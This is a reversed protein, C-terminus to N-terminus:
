SNENKSLCESSKKLELGFLNEAVANPSSRKSGAVAAAMVEGVALGMLCALYLAIAQVQLSFDVLAHLGEAVLIAVAALTAPMPRQARKIARYLQFCPACALALWMSTMPLGLGVAAELYSSHAHNWILDSSTEPLHYLPEVSQYTGGGHGVFPRDLIAHLAERYLDIRVASSEPAGHARELLANASIAILSLGAILITPFFFSSRRRQHPALFIVLFTGLLSSAIGARSGTLLLAAFIVGALGLYISVRSSLVLLAWALRSSGSLRERLRFYDRLALTTAIVIGIAFFSAASNRNVFTGTLWGPYATKPQIGITEWGFYANALGFVAVVLVMFLMLNLFAEPSGRKTGARVAIFIVSLTLWWMIAIQTQHPNITIRGSATPVEVWVPHQLSVPLGPMVQILMWIAPLMLLILLLFPLNWNGM